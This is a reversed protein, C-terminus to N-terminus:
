SCLRNKVRIAGNRLGNESVTLSPNLPKSNFIFKLDNDYNNAKVRFKNIIESLREEPYAVISINSLNVDNKFIINLSNNGM